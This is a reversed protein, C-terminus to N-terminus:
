KALNALLLVLLVRLSCLCQQGFEKHLQAAILTQNHWLYDPDFGLTPFHVPGAAISKTIEASLATHVRVLWERPYPVKASRELDDAMQDRILNAHIVFLTTPLFTQSVEDNRSLFHGAVVIVGRESGLAIKQLFWGRQIFFMGIPVLAVTAVLTFSPKVSALLISIFM